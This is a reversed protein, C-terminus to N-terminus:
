RRSFLIFRSSRAWFSSASSWCFSRFSGPSSTMFRFTAGSLDVFYQVIVGVSLVGGTVLHLPTIFAVDGFALLACGLLILIYNRVIKLVERKSLKKGFM